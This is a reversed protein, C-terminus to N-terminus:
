RDPQLLIRSILSQKIEVRLKSAELFKLGCEYSGNRFKLLHCSVLATIENVGDLSREEFWLGYNQRGQQAVNGVNKFGGQSFKLANFKAFKSVM